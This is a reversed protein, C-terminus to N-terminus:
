RFFSLAGGTSGGPDNAILPISKDVTRHGRDDWHILRASDEPWRVVIRAKLSEDTAPRLVRDAIDEASSLGTPSIQKALPLRL